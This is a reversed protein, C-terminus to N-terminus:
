KRPYTLESASYLLGAMVPIHLPLAHGRGDRLERLDDQLLDTLYEIGERDMRYEKYLELDTFRHFPDLAPDYQFVSPRRHGFNPDLFM